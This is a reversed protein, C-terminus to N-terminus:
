GPGIQWDSMPVPGPLFGGGVIASGNMQWVVTHGDEGRWLIDSRLDGDFDGFGEIKWFNGPNLAVIGGGTINTNDMTWICVSGDAGRWLIDDRGDANFDAAGAPSWATGPNFGLIGGGIITGADMNWIAISGDVFRWLIDARNDGNFDGTGVISWDHGPNLGVIGGGTIDTGDMTWVCVSGDVGRWLIDDRGDANFDAAGVPTWATGPNFGAIGGGIIESGDMEWLMVTGDSFRFLLDTRGDGNLDGAGRIDWENGPNLGVLDVSTVAIGNMEWTVVSGDSGRWLIDARGDGNFDVASRLAPFAAGDTASFTFALENSTLQDAAVGALLISDGASGYSVLTGGGPGEVTSLSVTAPDVDRFQLRDRGAAFGQVIDAGDFERLSITTTVRGQIAISDDGRGAEVVARSAWGDYSAPGRPFSFPYIAYPLTSVPALQDDLGNLGVATLLISDRGAGTAVAATNDEGAGNSAFSWTVAQDGEGTALQGGKGGVVDLRAVGAGAAALDARVQQFTALVYKGGYSAVEAASPAFVLSEGVSWGSLNQIRAVHEGGLSVPTSIVYQTPDLGAAMGATFGGVPITGVDDMSGIVNMVVTITQDPLPTRTGDPAIDVPHLTITQVHQGPSSADITIETGGRGSNPRIGEYAPPTFVRYAEDGFVDSTVGLAHANADSAQNLVGFRLTALITGAEVDGLELRWDNGTRVLGAPGGTQMVALTASTDQSAM